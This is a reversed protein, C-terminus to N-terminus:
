KVQTYVFDHGPHTADKGAASHCGVCDSAGVGDAIPGDPELAPNEEYYYWGKGGDSEDQIKIYVAYGDIKAGDSSWLEKVAAAGKPYDVNEANASIAANSCIRNTGHPSPARQAHKEAECHWSKYSGEALWTKLAAAGQPPPEDGGCATLALALGTLLAPLIRRM